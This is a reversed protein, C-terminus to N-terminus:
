RLVERVFFRLPTFISDLILPLSLCFDSNPCYLAECHEKLLFMREIKVLRQEAYNHSWTPIFDYGITARHARGSDCYMM